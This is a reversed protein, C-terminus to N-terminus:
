IEKIINKVRGLILVNSQNYIETKYQKNIPILVLTNNVKHVYRFKTIEENEIKTLLIDSYDYNNKIELLIKDGKELIPSMANDSVFIGSPNKLGITLNSINSNQNEKYTFENKVFEIYNELNDLLDIVINSIPEKEILKRFQDIQEKFVIDVINIASLSTMVQLAKFTDQIEKPAKDIYGEIVLVREDIECVQAIARSVKESPIKKGNIIKSFYSEDLLLGQENCKRVIDANTFNKSILINRLLKAYPIKQVM